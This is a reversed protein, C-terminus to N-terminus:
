TAHRLRMIKWQHVIHDNLSCQIVLCVMAQNGTCFGAIISLTPYNGNCSVVLWWEMYVLQRKHGYPVYNVM